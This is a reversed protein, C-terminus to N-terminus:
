TEVQRSDPLFQLPNSSLIIRLCVSDNQPPTDVVSKSAAGGNDSLVVVKNLNQSDLAFAKTVQIKKVIRWEFVDIERFAFNETRLALQGPEVRIGNPLSM